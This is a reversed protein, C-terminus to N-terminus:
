KLALDVTVPQEGQITVTTSVPKLKEHWTKLTYRGPPVNAIEYHGDAATVAAYPTELVIIYAAMEPHVACLVAIEGPENFAKTMPKAGAPMAQNFLSTRGLYCHVSHLLADSNLFTVGQGKLIPLVRPVFEKNIQDIRAPEMPPEFTKGEIRDIYVVANRADKVGSATVKGTITGAHAAVALGITLLLVRCFMAFWRMQRKM